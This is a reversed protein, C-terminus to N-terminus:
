SHSRQCSFLVPRNAVCWWGVALSLFFFFVKCRFFQGPVCVRACVCVCLYVQRLNCLRALANMVQLFRQLSVALM